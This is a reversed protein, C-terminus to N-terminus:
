AHESKKTMGNGKPNRFNKLSLRHVSRQLPLKKEKPHPSQEDGQKLPPFLHKGLKPSM